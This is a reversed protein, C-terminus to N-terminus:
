IVDKSIQPSGFSENQTTFQYLKSVPSSLIEVSKSSAKEKEERNGRESRRSPSVKPSLSPSKSTAQRVTNSPHQKSLQPASPISRISSSRSLTQNAPSPRSPSELLGKFFVYNSLYSIIFLWFILKIHKFRSMFIIHACRFHISYFKTFQSLKGLM